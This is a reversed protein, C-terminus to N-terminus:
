KQSNSSYLDLMKIEPPVAEPFVVRNFAIANKMGGSALTTEISSVLSNFKGLSFQSGLTALVEKPAPLM